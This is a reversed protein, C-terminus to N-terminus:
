HGVSSASSRPSGENFRAMRGQIDIAVQVAAASLGRAAEPEGNLSARTCYIRDSAITAGVHVAFL